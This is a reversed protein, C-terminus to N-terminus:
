SNTDTDFDTTCTVCLIFLNRCRHLLCYDGMFTVQAILLDQSVFIFKIQIKNCSSIYLDVQFRM